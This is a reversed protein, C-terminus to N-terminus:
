LLYREIFSDVTKTNLKKEECEFTVILGNGYHYGYFEYMESRECFDTAYRYSTILGAHDWIWTKRTRRNLCTFDPYHNRGKYKMNCEYRFPVNYKILADAINKESKSRVPDGNVTYTDDTFEYSNQYDPHALIWKDLFTDDSEIIPIVLKKREYYLTSYIDEFQIKPYEKEFHNIALLEKDISNLLEM